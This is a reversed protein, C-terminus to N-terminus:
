LLKPYSGSLTLCLCLVKALYVADSEQTEMSHHLPYSSPRQTSSSRPELGDRSSLQSKPFLSKRVRLNKIQFYCNQSVVCVSTIRLESFFNSISCTACAQRPIIVGYLKNKNSNHSNNSHDNTPQPIQIIMFVSILLITGLCFCIVNNDFTFYRQVATLEKCVEM